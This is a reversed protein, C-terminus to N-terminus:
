PTAQSTKTRYKSYKPLDALAWQTRRLFQGQGPEVIYVSKYEWNRQNEAKKIKFGHNFSILIGIEPSAGCHYSSPYAEIIHLLNDLSEHYPLAALEDALAPTARKTFITPILLMSQIYPTGANEISLLALDDLPREYV